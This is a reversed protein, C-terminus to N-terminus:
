ENSTEGKRYSLLKKIWIIDTSIATVNSNLSAVDSKILRIDSQIEDNRRLCEAEHTDLRKNIGDIAAKTSGGNGNGGGNGVFPIQKGNTLWAVVAKSVPSRLAIIALILFAVLHVVDLGQFGHLFNADM